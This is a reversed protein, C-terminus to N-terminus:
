PLASPAAQISADPTPQAQQRAIGEALLRALGFGGADAIVRALEQQGFELLSTAASDEGAGLWGASQGEQFAKFAQEILLAEFQRAADRPSAAGAESNATRRLDALPPLESLAGRNIAALPLWGERSM